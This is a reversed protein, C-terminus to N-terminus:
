HGACLAPPKQPHVHSACKAGIAARRRCEVSGDALRHSLLSSSAIVPKENERILNARYRERALPVDRGKADYRKPRRIRERRWSPENERDM